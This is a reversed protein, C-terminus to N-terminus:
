RTSSIISQSELFVLTGNGLFRSLAAYVIVIEEAKGSGKIGIAIVQPQIRSHPIHASRGFQQLGVISPLHPEIGYARADITHRIVVFFARQGHLEGLNLRSEEGLRQEDPPSGARFRGIQPKQVGPYDQKPV